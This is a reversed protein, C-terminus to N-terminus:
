TQGYIEELLDIVEQCFSLANFKNSVSHGIFYNEPAEEGELIISLAYSHTNEHRIDYLKKVVEHVGSTKVFYPKKKRQQTDVYGHLIDLSEEDKYTEGTEPDNFAHYLHRAKIEICSYCASM